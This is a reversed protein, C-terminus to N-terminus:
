MKLYFEKTLAIFDSSYKGNQTIFLTEEVYPDSAEEKGLTMLLRSAPKKENARVYCLRLLSLGHSKAQVILQEGERVPLILHAYGNVKLRQDIQRLLSLHDLTHTHRAIARNNQQSVPGSNFYPPNCIIADFRHPAQWHVIDSHLVQIRSSWPSHQVNQDASLYAEKNIEIATIDATATRQACMLALLGTGTGIDLIQQSSEIDAWAGLLVGDTSVPMGSQGESIHFQKFTFEKVTM